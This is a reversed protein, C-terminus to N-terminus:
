APAVAAKDVFYEDAGDHKVAIIGALILDALLRQTKRRSLRLHKCLEPLRPQNNAQLYTLLEREKDSYNILVGQPDNARRLVDVVVKGALISEDAVRIYVWWKGDPSRAYHPKTDSEAIEALLVPKDDVMHEAFSIDVPPRCYASAARELM